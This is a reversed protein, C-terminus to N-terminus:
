VYYGGGFANLAGFALLAGLSYRIATPHWERHMVDKAIASETISRPADDERDTQHTTMDAVDEVPRAM